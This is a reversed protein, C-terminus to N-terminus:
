TDSYRGGKQRTRGARCEFAVAAGCFGLSRAAGLAPIGARLAMFLTHDILLDIAARAGRHLRGLTIM